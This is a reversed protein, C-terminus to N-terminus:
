KEKGVWDKEEKENKEKRMKEAQRKKEDKGEKDCKVKDAVEQQERKKTQLKGLILKSASMGCKEAVM